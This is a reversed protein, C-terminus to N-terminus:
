PGILKLTAYTEPNERDRDPALSVLTKCPASPDDTDGVEALLKIIDGSQLKALGITAAPIRCNVVYGTATKRTEIRIGAALKQRQATSQTQPYWLYVDDSHSGDFNGPTIGVQYCAEQGPVNLWFELHDSKWLDEGSDTFCYRDDTVTARIYLADKDWAFRFEASLDNPGRYATKGYVATRAPYAPMEHIALSVAELQPGPKVPFDPRPGDTLRRYSDYHHIAIGGFGPQNAYFRCVKALEREMTALGEEYFTISRSGEFLAMVDLTEVGVWTKIRYRAAWDVERRSAQIIRSAQDHYSMVAFYDAIGAALHDLVNAKKGQWVIYKDPTDNAYTEPIAMGLVFGPQNAQKIAERCKAHLEVYLRDFQQQNAASQHYEPMTIPEVDSQFGDFRESPSVQRNYDLIRQLSALFKGQQEPLMADKWGDLGEVAIGAAHAAALFDQLQRRGPAVFIAATGSYLYLRNIHRDRCFQLTIKREDPNLVYDVNWLWLSRPCSVAPTIGHLNLPAPVVATRAPATKIGSWALMKELMIVAHHCALDNSDSQAALALPYYGFYVSKGGTAPARVIIAAGDATTRDRRIWTGAVKADKIPNAAFAEGAFAAYLPPNEAGWVAKRDPRIFMYQNVAGVGVQPDCVYDLYQIGFLKEALRLEEPTLPARSAKVGQVMIVAGERQAQLLAAGVAAPYGNITWCFILKAQKLQVARADDAAQLQLQVGHGAMTKIFKEATQKKGADKMLAQPLLVLMKEASSSFTLFGALLFTLIIKISSLGDM